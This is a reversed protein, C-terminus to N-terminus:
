FINLIMSLNLWPTTTTTENQSAHWLLSYGTDVMSHLTFHIYIYVTHYRCTSQILWSSHQLFKTSLKQEANGWATPWTSYKDSWIHSLLFWRACTDLCSTASLLPTCYLKHPRITEAVWSHKSCHANWLKSFMWRPDPHMGASSKRTNWVWPYTLATLTNISQVVSAYGVSLNKDKVRKCALSTQPSKVSKLVFYV